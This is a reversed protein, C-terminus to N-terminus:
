GASTKQKSCYGPQDPKGAIMDGYLWQSNYRTIWRVFPFLDIIYQVFHRPDPTVDRIWEMTSPEEEVYTDASSVSFVSEGRTLNEKGLENRYQLKIGLAKALGHGVKTSTSPM